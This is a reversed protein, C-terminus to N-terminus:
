WVRSFYYRGMMRRLAQVQTIQSSHKYKLESLLRKRLQRAQSDVKQKAVDRDVELEYVQTWDELFDFAHLVSEDEEGLWCVVGKAAPYLSPMLHIQAGKELKENESKEDQNICLM